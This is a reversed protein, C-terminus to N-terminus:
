SEGLCTVKIYGGDGLSDIAEQFSVEGNAIDAEWSCMMSAWEEDTIIREVRVERTGRQIQCLRKYIIEGSGVSPLLEVSKGSLPWVIKIVAKDRIQTFTFVAEELLSHPIRIEREFRGKVEGAYVFVGNSSGSM